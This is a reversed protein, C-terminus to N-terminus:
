CRLQAALLAADPLEELHWISDVIRRRASEGLLHASFRHFKDEVMAFTAPNPISGPHPGTTASLTGGAV